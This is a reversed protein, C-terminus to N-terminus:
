EYLAYKSERMIRRKAGAEFDAKEEDTLTFGEALAKDYLIVSEQVAEIIQNRTSDRGTMGEEMETDWYSGSGMQQYLQDMQMAFQEATYIDYMMDKEYIKDGGVTLILKPHLQDYAVVGVIVVLIVIASCFMIKPLKSRSGKGKKSKKSKNIGQQKLVKKGANM